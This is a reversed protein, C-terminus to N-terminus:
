KYYQHINFHYEVYYCVILQFTEQRRREEEDIETQSKIEDIDQLYMNIISKVDHPIIKKLKKVSHIYGEILRQKRQQQSLPHVYDTPDTEQQRTQCAGM